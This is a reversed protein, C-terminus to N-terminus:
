EEQTETDKITQQYYERVQIVQNKVEGEPLSTILDDLYSDCETPNGFFASEKEILIKPAMRCLLELLEFPQKLAGRKCTKDHDFYQGMTWGISEIPWILCEMTFTKQWSLEPRDKYEVKCRVLGPGGQASSVVSRYIMPINYAYISYHDKFDRLKLQSFKVWFWLFDPPSLCGTGRYPFGYWRRKGHLIRFPVECETLSEPEALSNYLCMLPYEYSEINIQEGDKHIAMHQFKIHESTTAYIVEIEFSDPEPAIEGECGALSWLCFLLAILRCNRM